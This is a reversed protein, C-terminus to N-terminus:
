MVGLVWFAEEEDLHLLLLASLVNMSQCYGVRPLHWACAVLVRRLKARGETTGFIPDIITRCIDKDVDVIASSGENVHSDLLARYHGPAAALMWSKAFSASLWLDGRLGKPIGRLVLEAVVPDDQQAWVRGKHKAFSSNIARLAAIEEPPFLSQEAATMPEDGTDPQFLM